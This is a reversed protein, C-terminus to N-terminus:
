DYFGKEIEIYNPLRLAVKIDTVGDWYDKCVVVNGYLLVVGWGDVNSLKVKEVVWKGM